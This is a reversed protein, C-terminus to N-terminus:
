DHVDLRLYIKLIGEDGVCSRAFQYSFYVCSGSRIVQDLGCTYNSVTCTAKQSEMTERRKIKVRYRFMTTKKACGIHLVCTYLTDDRVTCVHLFIEDYFLIARQWTSARSFNKLWTKTYESKKLIGLGHKTQLHYKMCCLPNESSCSPYPCKYPLRHCTATPFKINLLTIKKDCVIHSYKCTATLKSTLSELTRNRTELFDSRCVPCKKLKAKCKGCVNHGNSCMIIPEQFYDMCVPCELDKLLEKTLTNM